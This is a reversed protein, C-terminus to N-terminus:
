TKRFLVKGDREVHAKLADNIKEFRVIDMHHFIPLEDLEWKLRSFAEDTMEPAYVCLDIDSKLSNDGRARSGFVVVKEVLEFRGFFAKLDDAVDQPIRYSV